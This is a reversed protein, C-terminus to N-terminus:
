GSGVVRPGQESVIADLICPVTDGHNVTARTRLLYRGSIEDRPRPADQSNLFPAVIPEDLCAAADNSATRRGLLSAPECPHPGQRPGNSTRRIAALKRTEFGSAKAGFPSRCPQNSVDGSRRPIDVIQAQRGNVLGIKFTAKPDIQGTRRVRRCHGSNARLPGRRRWATRVRDQQVLNSVTSHAEPFSGLRCYNAM